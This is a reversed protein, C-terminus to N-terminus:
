PHCGEDTASPLKGGNGNHPQRTSSIDSKPLKILDKPRTPSLKEVFPIRPRVIIQRASTTESHHVMSESCGGMSVTEFGEGQYPTRTQKLKRADAKSFRFGYAQITLRQWSAIRLRHIWGPWSVTRLNKGPGLTMTRVTVDSRPPTKETKRSPKLVVDVISVNESSWNVSGCHMGLWNGGNRTVGGVSALVVSCM